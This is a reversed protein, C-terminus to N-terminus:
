AEHVILTGSEKKLVIYSDYGYRDSDAEVPNRLEYDWSGRGNEMTMTCGSFSIRTDPDPLLINLSLVCEDTQSCMFSDLMEGLSVCNEETLDEARGDYSDVVPNFLVAIVLIGCLCASVRALTFEMM